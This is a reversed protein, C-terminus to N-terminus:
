RGSAQGFGEAGFAAAAHEVFQDICLRGVREFAEVTFWGEFRDVHSEITQQWRAVGSADVVRLDVAIDCTTTWSPRVWFTHISAQLTDHELTRASRLWAAALADQILAPVGGPNGAILYRGTPQTPLLLIAGAIAPAAPGAVV